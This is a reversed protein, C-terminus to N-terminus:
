IKYVTKIKYINFIQVFNSYLVFFTKAFVSDIFNQIEVINSCLTNFVYM